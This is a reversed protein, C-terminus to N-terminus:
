FLMTIVWGVLCGITIVPMAPYYRGKESRVFLYILSLTATLSIISVILFAINPMFGRVLFREYVVASFILPFAIDGGGLIATKSKDKASFREKKSRKGAKKNEVAGMKMNYPIFLGAFARNGTQFKALKIMHKSKRVAYVDYVSIMLLLIIASTINLLPILVIAIGPYILLETLNHLYFNPRFVKLWALIVALVAALLFHVYVGLTIAIAFFVAALFGYRWFNGLRFKILVLILLTGFLIVIIIPLFSYNKDEIEPQEGFVTDKHVVVVGGEENIRTETYRQVTYLGFVQIVIFLLVLM